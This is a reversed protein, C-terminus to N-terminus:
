LLQIHRLMENEISGEPYKGSNLASATKALFDEIKRDADENRFAEESVQSTAQKSGTSYSYEEFSGVGTSVTNVGAHFESENSIPKIIPLIHLLLTAFVM